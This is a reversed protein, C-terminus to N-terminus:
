DSVKSAKFAVLSPFCVHQYFVFIQKAMHLDEASVVRIIVEVAETAVAATFGTQVWRSEIFMCVRIVATLALRAVLLTQLHSVGTVVAAM